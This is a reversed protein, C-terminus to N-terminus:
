QQKGIPSGTRMRCDIGGRWRCYLATVPMKEEHSISVLVDVSM